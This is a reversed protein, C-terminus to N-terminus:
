KGYTFTSLVGALPLVIEKDVQTYINTNIISNAGSYTNHMIVLNHLDLVPKHWVVDRGYFWYFEM